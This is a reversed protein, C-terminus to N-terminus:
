RVTDVLVDLYPVSNACQYGANPYHSNFSPIQGQEQRIKLKGPPFTFVYQYPPLDSMARPLINTTWSSKGHHKYIPISGTAGGRRLTWRKVRKLNRGPHGPQRRTPEMEMSGPCLYTDIHLDVLEDVDKGIEKDVDVDINVKEKYASM